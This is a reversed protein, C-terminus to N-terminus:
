EVNSNLIMTNWLLLSVTGRKLKEKYREESFVTEGVLLKIEKARNIHGVPWEGEINKEEGILRLILTVVEGYSILDDPAFITDSYGKMYGLKIVKKINTEAWHGNIDDYKVEDLGEVPENEYLTVRLILTAMEARTINSELELNGDDRGKLINISKLQNAAYTEMESAALASNAMVIFFCMGLLVIKNLWESM